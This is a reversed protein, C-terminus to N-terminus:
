AGEISTVEVETYHRRFGVKRRAHNRQEYKYAFVKKDKGQAVIKGKVVAGDINPTGVKADDGAILLVNDFAVAAGPEDPMLDVRVRDGVSAKHQNGGAEFIAYM